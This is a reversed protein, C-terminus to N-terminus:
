PLTRKPATLSSSAHPHAEDWASWALALLLAPVGSANDALDAWDLYMANARAMRYATTWQGRTYHRFRPQLNM